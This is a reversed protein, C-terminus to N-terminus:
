INKLYNLIELYSTLASALRTKAPPVAFGALLTVVAVRFDALAFSAIAVRTANKIWKGAISPSTLALALGSDTSLVTVSALSAKMSNGGIALWASLAEVAPVSNDSLKDVLGLSNKSSDIIDSVIANCSLISTIRM